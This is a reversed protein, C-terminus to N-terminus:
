KSVLKNLNQAEDLEIQNYPYEFCDGVNEAFIHVEHDSEPLDQLDALHVDAFEENIRLFAEYGKIITFMGYVSYRM